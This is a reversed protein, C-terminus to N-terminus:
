KSHQRFQDQLKVFWEGHHRYHQHAIPYKFDLDFLDDFWYSNLGMKRQLIAPHKECALFEDLLSKKIIRGQIYKLESNICKFLSFILPIYHQDDPWSWFDISFNFTAVYWKYETLRVVLLADM